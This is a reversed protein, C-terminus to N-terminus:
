MFHIHPVCTQFQSPRQPGGEQVNTRDVGTELRGTSCRAASVSLVPCHHGTLAKRILEEFAQCTDWSTRVAKSPNLPDLLKHVEKEDIVLDPIPSYSPGYLKKDAVSPTDITFVSRFQKNLLKAKSVSDAFLKRDQRLPAVGVSDQQQAQYLELLFTQQRVGPWRLPHWKHLELPNIATSEQYQKPTQLLAVLRRRWSHRQGEKLNEKEQLVHTKSRRDTLSYQTAHQNAQFTNLEEPTEHPRWTRGTRISIRTKLDVSFNPPLAAAKEGLKGWDAM